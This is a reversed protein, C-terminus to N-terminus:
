NEFESALAKIRGIIEKLTKLRRDQPLGGVRCKIQLPGSANFSIKRTMGKVLKLLQEGSLEPPNYFSITVMDKNQKISSVGGGKAEIRLDTLKILNAAEEPLEGFRDILEDTLEELEESSDMALLRKYIEIKSGTDPVYVDSLYGNIELEIDVSRSEPVVPKGRQEEVAQQLLRTYLDFGVAMIQGHQEPGLINGAGRIELDRMAIKFGAGLQTFEKIAHLRKEAVETLVKDRQYTFYTYAIRNSRGVRGRLQYLQSLGLKDAEDVILTNVNPIDIGNEIITTCVLIDLERDIFQLMVKELQDERMQGHTVGIKAHPILEQLDRAVKEIDAVVNHLYFVQGGRSLERNIAGKIVQPTHEVVFTQIPYRDEPPTEIVSLDRAGVLSMHLTRPIPTASLTLVDINQKLQKLKEKHAVGFRQEEDVILLGLDKFSVDKSLLRHTGILVDVQGTNVEDIIARQEKPRRFRSIVDVGIPYNKLREKFTEYHQHALITTPVLVAVQKGDMVAKFAARLAVETKGYGVDGCLLRDMPKSKEMDAKVEEIARIQDATETYPFAQEFEQQWVADASFSYGPTAERMAYLQLLEKAMEQVSQKVRSKVKNWDNGGLKYLKPTEGEAGVYKQILDVQDAPVFLKDEGAYKVVLYDKHNDGIELKEIGLYKGIGHNEHVVYDGVKLDVFTAIKEKQTRKKRRQDGKKQQGYIENENIVVLKAEHIVFGSSINGAKLTVTGLELDSGQRVPVSLQTLERQLIEEQKTNNLLILVGYEQECYEKLDDALNNIQGHFSHMLTGSFSLLQNPKTKAGKRPLLALFVQRYGTLIETLEKESFTSVDQDFLSNGQAYMAKITEHKEELYETLEQWTRSPECIYVVPERSFYEIITNTQAFFLPLLSSARDIGTGQELMEILPKVLESISSVAEEQKDLTLKSVVKEFVRNLEQSGAKLHENRLLVEAAPPIIIQQVNEISRQSQLEFLRISDVEDDFFEIRWPNEETLPFIDVIGGRVSYQGKTEVIDVREYGATGLDAVLENFDITQGVELQRWYQFFEQAPMMKKTLAQISIVLVPKIQNKLLALGEMRQAPLDTSAAIISFPLFEQYPFYKVVGSPLLNEMDEATRKANLENSTVVLVPHDAEQWSAAILYAQQSETLGYILQQGLGNKLGDQLKIFKETNTIPNLMGITM